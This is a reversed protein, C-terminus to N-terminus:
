SNRIEKIQNQLEKIKNDKERKIAEAKEYKAIQEPSAKSFEYAAIEYTLHDWHFDIEVHTAGQEKLNQLTSIMEDILIPQTDPSGYGDQFTIIEDEEYDFILGITQALDEDRYEETEIDAVLRKNVYTNM